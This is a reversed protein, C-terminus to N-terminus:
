LAHAEPITYLARGLTVQEPMPQSNSLGHTIDIGSLYGRADCFFIVDIPETAESEFAVEFFAGGKAGTVLPQLTSEGPTELDFSNCGCDCLRTVRAASFHQRLLGAFPIEPRRALTDIWAHATKLSNSM